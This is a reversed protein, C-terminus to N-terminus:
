LPVSLLCLRTWSHLLLSQSFLCTMRELLVTLNQAEARDGEAVAEGEAGVTHLTM